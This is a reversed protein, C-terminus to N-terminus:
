SVDFGGDDDTGLKGAADAIYALAQHAESADDYITPVIDGLTPATLGHAGDFTVTRTATDISVIELGTAAGDDDGIPVADHWCADSIHGDIRPRDADAIPLVHCTRREM